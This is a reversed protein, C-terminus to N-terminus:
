PFFHGEEKLTEEINQLCFYTKTKTQNPKKNTQKKDKTNQRKGREQKSFCSISRM